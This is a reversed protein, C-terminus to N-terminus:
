IPAGYTKRVYALVAKIQEDSLSPGWAPMTGITGTFGNKVSNFLEDDTKAALREKYNAAMVNDGVKGSGDAQHCSQCYIEFIQKGDTPASSAATPAAEPAAPAAEPAPSPAPPETKAPEPSSCAALLLFFATLTRM